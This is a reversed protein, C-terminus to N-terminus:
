MTPVRSPWRAAASRWTEPLVESAGGGGITLTGGNITTGGGYHEHRDADVGPGQQVLSGSAGSINGAFTVGDSRAFALVSNDTVNGQLTGTTGGGGIQLTGGGITTTVSASLSNNGSLIFNSSGSKTLSIPGSLQGAYTTDSTPSVTLTCAGSSTVLDSAPVLSTLGAISQSYSNLNLTGANLTFTAESPLNNAKTPKVTGNAITAGGAWSNASGSLITTGNSFTM